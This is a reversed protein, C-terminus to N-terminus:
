GSKLSARIYSNSGRQHWFIGAIVVTFTIETSAAAATGVASITLGDIRAVHERALDIQRATQLALADLESTDLVCQAARLASRQGGDAGEADDRRRGGRRGRCAARVWDCHGGSGGCPPPQYSGNRPETFVPREDDEAFASAVQEFRIAARGLARVAGLANLTTVRTLRALLEVAAHSLRLFQRVVRLDIAGIQSSRLREAFLARIDATDNQVVLELAIDDEFRAAFSDGSSRTRNRAWVVM